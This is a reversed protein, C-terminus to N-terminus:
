NEDNGLDKLMYEKFAKLQKIRKEKDQMQIFYCYAGDVDKDEIRTKIYDEYDQIEEECKITKCEIFSNLKRTFFIEDIKKEMKKIVKQILNM